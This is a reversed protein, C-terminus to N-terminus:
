LKRFFLLKLRLQVEQGPNKMEGTLIQDNNETRKPETTM